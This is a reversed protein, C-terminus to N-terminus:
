GLRPVGFKRSMVTPVAPAKPGTGAPVKNGADVGDLSDALGLDGLDM